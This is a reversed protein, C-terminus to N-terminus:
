VRIASAVGVVGVALKSSRPQEDNDSFEDHHTM